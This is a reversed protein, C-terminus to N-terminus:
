RKNFIFQYFSKRICYHNRLFINLLLLLIYVNNYNKIHIPVFTKRTHIPVFTKRTLQELPALLSIKFFM